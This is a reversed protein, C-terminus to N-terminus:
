SKRRLAQWIAILFLINKTINLLNHLIWVSQQGRLGDIFYNNIIFLFLNGSYYVIVAINIWVMPVRHVFVVPLNRLLQLFYFLAVVMFMLGSLSFSYSNLVTPGQVFFYNILFFTPYVTIILIFATRGFLTTGRWYMWLLLMGQVLFYLNGVVYSNYGSKALWLSLSDFVLSAILIVRTLRLEIPPDVLRLSLALPVIPSLFSSYALILAVTM